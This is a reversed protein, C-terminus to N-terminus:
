LSGETDSSLHRDLKAVGSRVIEDLESDSPGQSSPLVDTDLLSSVSDLHAQHEDTFLPVALCAANVPAFYSIAAVVNGLRNQLKRVTDPRSAMSLALILRAEESRLSSVIVCAAPLDMEIATSTVRLSGRHSSSSAM